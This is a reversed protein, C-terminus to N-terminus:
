LRDKLWDRGRAWRSRVQRLTWGTKEAIEELTYGVFYHLDVVSAAESNQDYLGEMLMGMEVIAESNSHSSCLMSEEDLVAPIDGNGRREALRSRAFEVLVFRMVKAAIAYFHARNNIKWGGTRLKRLWVENILETPRLPM